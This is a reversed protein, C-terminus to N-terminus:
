GRIDPLLLRPPDPARITATAVARALIAHQPDALQLTFRRDPAETEAHPLLAVQIATTTIGPAFTIVGQAALYDVGAVASDDATTYAVTTTFVAPQSQTVPFVAATATAAVNVDVVSVAASDNDTLTVTATPIDGLAIGQPNSLILLFTEDPEVWDDDVIAIAATIWATGTVIEIRRRLAHYDDPAVATLNESSLTVVVAQAPPPELTATVVLVGDGETVQYESASFNIVGTEAPPAASAALPGVLLMGAGLFLLAVLLAALWSPQIVRRWSMRYM